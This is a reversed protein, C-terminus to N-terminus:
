IWGVLSAMSLVLAEIAVLQVGCWIRYILPDIGQYIRTLVDAAVALSVCAWLGLISAVVM